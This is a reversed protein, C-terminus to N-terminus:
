QIACHYIMINDNANFLKYVIKYRNANVTIFDGINLYIITNTEHLHEDYGVTYYNTIM